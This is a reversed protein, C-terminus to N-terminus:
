EDVRNTRPIKWKSNTVIILEESSYSLMFLFVILNKTLTEAIIKAMKLITNLYDLIFKIKLYVKLFNEFKLEFFNIKSLIFNFKM